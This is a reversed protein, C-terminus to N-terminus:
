NNTTAPMCYANLDDSYNPQPYSWSASQEPTVATPVGAALAAYLVPDQLDSTSQISHTSLMEYDLRCAGSSCTELVIDPHRDFISNVWAMYARRHELMGDGPSSANIDTGHTVDINYDLKLYGVYYNNILDDVIANLHTIVAAHRFDLQYRSQEVVRVGRRQFFAESPLEDVIPSMVGVVEPEMWLGPIMGRDRIDKLLTKLGDVFRTTSPKWEGVTNWWSPENAYWGADIVFYEAGCRLAPEILAAVKDTTPDGKLCNMYDNFIIPLNENDVHQRRIHRRYQTLPPFVSSLPGETITFATTVGTFTERPSLKKTWQHNQDNPGGAILYLGSVINGLEWHWSGSSEVQWAISGTGDTKVLAGMPLSNSTSFTGLNSKSFSARTGPKDFDSEGVWDMGIDPFNFAKWQAERFNSSNAVVVQYDNFWEEFGRNLFGISLSAFTELFIDKCGLNTVVATSRVVPINGFVTYRNLIEIKTIPDRTLIELIHIGDSTTLEEHSVYVLRSSTASYVQRESTGFISGEGLLRVQTLPLAHEIEKDIEHVITKSKAPRVNNLYIHRDPDILFDLKLSGPAWRIWEASELM